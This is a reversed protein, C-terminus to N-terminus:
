RAGCGLTLDLYRPGPLQHEFHWWERWYDEFGFRTMARRLTLRNRLVRGRADLTHAGPGLADYRGMALRRGEALRILTLDVASGLNHKSRRAIYTGVLDPRGTREAWRVLARSARAPRYADLIVLGLGRRRLYRQVRALDRAAPRLMLAWERCYGPLRRGTLNDDGAYALDLEIGPAFRRVDVLGARRHAPTGFQAPGAAPRFIRRAVGRITVTGYAHSPNGDTLVALSVRLDRREFLGAAHVLQGRGTSRWGLKFFAKFGTRLATRPFGWRQRRDVAALLRRAYGRSRRPTLRDFRRFFRAQDGASIQASPWGGPVSFDRMGARRALGNLPRAGLRGFISTAAGNSSVRIMPGLLTREVPGPRRNGIRRLYAVLLMAKVVSASVYTRRPALGRLRGRSDSVAFSAVGRRQRLWRQAGRVQESSPVAAQAQARAEPAAAPLAAWLAVLALAAAALAIRM